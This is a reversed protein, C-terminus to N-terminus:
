SPKEHPYVRWIVYGIAVCVLPFSFVMPMDWDHSTADPHYNSSFLYQFLEELLFYLGVTLGVGGVMSVIIRPIDAFTPQRM